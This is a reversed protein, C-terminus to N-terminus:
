RSFPGYSRVVTKTNPFSTVRRTSPSFALPVVCCRPWYLVLVTALLKVYVHEPLCRIRPLFVKEGCVYFGRICFIVPLDVRRFSFYCIDISFLSKIRKYNFINM